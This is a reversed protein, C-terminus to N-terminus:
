NQLNDPICRFRPHLGEARFWLSVLADYSASGLSLNQALAPMVGTTWVPYVMTSVHARGTDDYFAPFSGTKSLRPPCNSPHRAIFNTWEISALHNSGSEIEEKAPDNVAGFRAWAEEGDHEYETLPSVAFTAAVPLLRCGDVPRGRLFDVSSTKFPLIFIKQYVNCMREMATMQKRLAGVDFPNIDPMRLERHPTKKGFGNIRLTTCETTGFCVGTVIWVVLWAPTEPETCLRLLGAVVSSYWKDPRTEADFHADEDIYVDPDATHLKRIRTQVKVMFNNEKRAHAAAAYLADGTLYMQLKEYVPHRDAIDPRDALMSRVADLVSVLVSIEIPPVVMQAISALPM